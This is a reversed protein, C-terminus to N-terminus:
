PLRRMRKTEMSPLPKTEPSRMASSIDASPDDIGDTELLAVGTAILSQAVVTPLDYVGGIDLPRDVGADQLWRQRTMRIRM